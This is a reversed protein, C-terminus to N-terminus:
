QGEGTRLPPAGAPRAYNAFYDCIEEPSNFLRSDIFSRQGLLDLASIAARNRERLDQRRCNTVVFTDGLSLLSRMDKRVDEIDGYGSDRDLLGRYVLSQILVVLEDFQVVAYLVQSAYRNFRFEMTRPQISETRSLEYAQKRSGDVNRVENQLVEQKLRHYKDALERMKKRVDEDKTEIQTLLYDAFPDDSASMTFAIQAQKAFERISRIHSGGSARGDILRAAQTSHIVVRITGQLQGVPQPEAEATRRGAGAEKRPLQRGWIGGAISKNM